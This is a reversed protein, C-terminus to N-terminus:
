CKGDGEQLGEALAERAERLISEMEHWARRDELEPFMSAMSTAFENADKVVLCMRRVLDALRDARQNAERQAEEVARAREAREAAADRECEDAHALAADREERLRDRENVAEVILAADADILEVAVEDDDADIIRAPEDDYARIVRWPLPSHENM